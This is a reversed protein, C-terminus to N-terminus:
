PVISASEIGDLKPFGSELYANGKAYIEGQLGTLKEGYGGYLSDVVEMGEVVKGVPSFGQGDLGRNDKLNIFFQTSRSNPRSSKAYTLFGRANSQKVPDDPINADMWKASVAPDGHIGFQVVFDPVVRFFKVGDFYGNKVLNYLRDAGHPSWARTVEVVIDGKTTAFRIKFSDPATETLKEPHMLVETDAARIPGASVAFMTMLAVGLLRMM